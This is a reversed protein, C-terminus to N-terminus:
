AGGGSSFLALIIQRDCLFPGAAPVDGEEVRGAEGVVVAGVTSGFPNFAPPFKSRQLYAAIM